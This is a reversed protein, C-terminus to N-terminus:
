GAGDAELRELDKKRALCEKYIQRYALGEETSVLNAIDKISRTKETLLEEIRNLVEESLSHIKKGGSGAVVLTFEGRVRDPTLYGLISSDPGRKVEEFVKTIERLMVMQRDGLMEGLDALMAKIRHPAEFFVMTRPELILKALIKKRKGAKNPLFGLFVFEETPLGSVSLAAIV